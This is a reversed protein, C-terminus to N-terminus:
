LSPTSLLSKIKESCGILNNVTTQLEPSASDLAKTAEKEAMRDNYIKKLSIPGKAKEIAERTLKLEVGKDKLLDLAKSEEMNKTAADILFLACSTLLEAFAALIKPVSKDVVQKITFGIAEYKEGFSKAQRSSRIVDDALTYIAGYVKDSGILDAIAGYVGGRTMRKTGERKDIPLDEFFNKNVTINIGQGAFYQKMVRQTSEVLNRKLEWDNCEGNLFSLINKNLEEKLLTHVDTM